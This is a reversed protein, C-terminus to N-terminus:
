PILRAGWIEIRLHACRRQAYDFLGVANKRGLGFAIRL